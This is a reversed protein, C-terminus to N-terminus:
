LYFLETLLWGTSLSRVLEAESLEDNNSRSANSKLLLWSGVLKVILVVSGFIPDTVFLQMLLSQAVVKVWTICEDMTFSASLVLCVLLTCVACTTLFVYNIVSLQIRWKRCDTLWADFEITRLLRRRHQKMRVRRQFRRVVALGIENAAVDHEAGQCDLGLTVPPKSMAHFMHTKPLNVDCSLFALARHLYRPREPKDAQMEIDADHAQSPADSWAETSSAAWLSLTKAASEKADNDRQVQTSSRVLQRGNLPVVRKKKKKGRFLRSSLRQLERRILSVPMRTSTKFSNVNAIMFPLFYKIPFLFINAFLAGIFISLLLTSFSATAAADSTANSEIDSVEGDESLDSLFAQVLFTSLIAAYLTFAKDAQTFVVFEHAWRFLLSLFTNSSLVSLSMLSAVSKAPLWGRLIAEFETGRIVAPKSLSGNQLFVMRAGQVAATRGRMKAVVVVIIFLVTVSVFIMPVLTNVQTSDALLDVSGLAHFRTSFTDIKQEVLLAADSKDTVTFLTLHSSVCIAIAETGTQPEDLAHFDIGRLYVGRESWSRNGKEWYRCSLSKRLSENSPRSISISIQFGEDVTETEPPSNGDGDTVTIGQIDALFDTSSGYTANTENVSWSTMSVSTTNDTVGPIVLTASDTSVIVDIGTPDACALSFVARDYTSTTGDDTETAVCVADVSDDAAQIVEVSGGMSVYLDVVDLYLNITTETPDSHRLMDGIAVIADILADFVSYDLSEICFDLIEALVIVNQDLRTTDNTANLYAFFKDYLVYLETTNTGQAIGTGTQNSLALLDLGVLLTIPGLADVAAMDYALLADLVESTAFDFAGGARSAAVPCAIEAVAGTAETEPLFCVTAHVGANDTVKVQIFYDRTLPTSFTVHKSTSPIGFVKTGSSNAQILTYHYHLEGGLVSSANVTVNFTNTLLSRSVYVVHVAHLIPPRSKTAATTAAPTTPVVPVATTCPVLEDVDSWCDDVPAFTSAQLLLEVTQALSTFNGTLEDVKSELIEIEANQHQVTFNLEHVLSEQDHITAANTQAQQWLTSFDGSLVDIQLQLDTDNLVLEAAAARLQQLHQEVTAIELNQGDVSAALLDLSSNLKDIDRTHVVDQSSLLGSFNSLEVIETEFALLRLGHSSINSHLEETSQELDAVHSQLADDNLALQELAAAHTTLNRKSALLEAASESIGRANAAIAEQHLTLNLAHEVLSDVTADLMVELRDIRRSNNVASANTTAIAAAHAVFSEAHAALTKDNSRLAASHNSINGKNWLISQTNSVIDAAHTAIKTKSWSINATNMAIADANISINVGNQEVSIANTAIDVANSAIADSNASISASNSSIANSNASVGAATTAIDATNSAIDDSNSVIGASNASIDAGHSAIVDANVSIGAANVAIDAANASMNALNWAISKAHVSINMRNEAIADSNASTADATSSLGATNAAINASNASIDAGHSALVDANASIGAANVAIDAANASINAINWAISKAHVSINMRNEAVADSNASTANATSSLGATNAAINASNASVHAANSAIADANASINASNAAVADANASIAVTNSSIADANASIGAVNAAIDAANSAIADANSSIDASNSAIAGSNASVAATNSSIAGSNASIVATNSAIDAANASIDAANSTIADANASIGAGNSAITGSNASIAAANSAIADSNSSVGASNTAIDNANISINAVNWSIAAANASINAAHWADATTRVADSRRLTEIDSSHSKITDANSSINVANASISSSHSSLLAANTSIAAANDAIAVANLAAAEASSNISKEIDMDNVVFGNEVCVRLTGSRNSTCPRSQTDFSLVGSNSHVARAFSGAAFTLNGSATNGQGGSVTAFAGDATNDLGGAISAAYGTASNQLGGSVVAYGSNTNIFNDSGGEIVAYSSKATNREGGGVVVYNSDIFNSSGAGLFDHTGVVVNGYGSAGFNYDGYIFLAAGTYWL